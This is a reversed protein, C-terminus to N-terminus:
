HAGIWEFAVFGVYVALLIGGWLRSTAKETHTALVLYLLLALLTVASALYHSVSQLKVPSILATIGLVVSANFVISGTIDGMSLLPDGALSSRIAFVLEPLSTGIALVFLGIVFVPVGLLGAAEVAFYVVWRSSYVLVAVLGVFMAVNRWFRPDGKVGDAEHFFRSSRLLQAMYALFALLLAAGDGRSLKGDLALLLPLLALGAAWAAERRRIVSRIKLRGSLLMLVGMVLAINAINSGVVNGFSLSGKGELSSVIGVSLEPVSTAAAMLVFSIIFSSVKLAGALRGLVSALAGGSWVLVALSVVLGLWIM